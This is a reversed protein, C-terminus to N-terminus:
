QTDEKNGYAIQEAIMIWLWCGALWFRGEAACGLMIAMDTSTSLWVPVSRGTKRLSKQAAEGLCAISIVSYAVTIFSLINDAWLRGEALAFWACAM